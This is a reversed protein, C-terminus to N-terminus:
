VWHPCLGKLSEAAEEVRSPTLTHGRFHGGVRLRAPHAGGAEGVIM